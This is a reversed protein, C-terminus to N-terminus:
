LWPPGGGMGSIQAPRNQEGRKDLWMKAVFGFDGQSAESKAFAIAFVEGTASYALTNNHKQM